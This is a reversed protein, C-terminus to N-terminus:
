VDSRIPWGFKAYARALTAAIRGSTGIKTLVIHLSIVGSGIALLPAAIAGALPAMLSLALLGFALGVYLALLGISLPQWRFAHIRYVLINLLAFHLIYAIMFSPGAAIIGYDSLTPWLMLLFLINFNLQVLLFTKGRAAAALSFGLPWSALKFVNGVTQWQLLTAAPAFESSYLLTIVWPALGILLLLVPGGLALGLQTQDNMLRIAAARDKIVGTLRPYYDAGMAGLLFGVYTMTIGWSAAFQGAADIGLEQTIRGRVLLLTAATAVSGMMFAAGLRAMPKWIAWTEVTSLRSTTTPKPLRHTFYLAAMLGTLPQSLVFWILGAQGYIWIAVIGIVTGGLAGSVTVRGLDGIRRLGQLLATQAKMMLTLLIAIGVLGIQLAYTADGLLWVSIPERLLWVGLMALAGQVLHASLLVRRMRSLEAEEGRASAIQRVGSSAMGLGAANSVMGQLNNYIGLLGVGAPGLLVALLKMRFITLLIKVVQASGIVMMSKILGRSSM